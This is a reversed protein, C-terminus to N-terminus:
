VILSIVLVTAYLPIFIISFTSFNILTLLYSHENNYHIDLLLTWTQNIFFHMLKSHCYRGGCSLIIKIIKSTWLSFTQALRLYHECSYAMINSYTSLSLCLITLENLFLCFIYMYIFMIVVTIAYCICDAIQGQVFSMKPFCLKSATDM